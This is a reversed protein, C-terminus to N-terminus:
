EGAWTEEPQGTLSARAFGSYFSALLINIGVLVGDQAGVKEARPLELFRLGLGTDEGGDGVLM